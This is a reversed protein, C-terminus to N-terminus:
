VHRFHLNPYGKAVASAASQNGFQAVPSTMVVYVNSDANNKAASEVSCIKKLDLRSEGSTEVFFISHPRPALEPLPNEDPLLKMPHPARADLFSPRSTNYKASLILYWTLNTAAFVTLTTFLATYNRMIVTDICTVSFLGTM